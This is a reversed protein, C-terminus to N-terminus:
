KEPPPVSPYKEQSRAARALARRVWEGLSIGKQEALSMIHDYDEQSLAFKFHTRNKIGPRGRRDGQLNKKEYAM